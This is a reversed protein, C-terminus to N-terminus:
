EIRGYSIEDCADVQFAAYQNAGIDSANESTIYYNIGVPCNETAVFEMAAERYSESRYERFEPVDSGGKICPIGRSILYTALNESKLYDIESFSEGGIKIVGMKDGDEQLNDLEILSDTWDVAAAKRWHPFLCRVGGHASAWCDPIMHPIPKSGYAFLTGNKDKALWKAWGPVEIEHGFYIATFTSM